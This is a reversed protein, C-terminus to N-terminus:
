PMKQRYTKAMEVDQLADEEEYNIPINRNGLERFFQYRPINAFDAAQSSSLNLNKYFFIAIEIKLEQETKGSLQAMEKPIIIDKKFRIM